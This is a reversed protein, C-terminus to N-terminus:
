KVMFPAKFAECVWICSVIFEDSATELLSTSNMQRHKLLYIKEKYFGLFWPLHLWQRKRRCCKALTLDLFVLQFPFLSM